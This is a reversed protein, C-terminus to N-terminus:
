IPWRSRRQHQLYILSGPVLLAAGVGQVARAVILRHTDGSLACGVSGQKGVIPRSRQPM